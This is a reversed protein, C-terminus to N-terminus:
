QRHRVWARAMESLGRMVAAYRWSRSRHVDDLEVALRRAEEAWTHLQDRAEGLEAGRRELEASLRQLEESLRGREDSLQDREATLRQLAAELETRRTAGETREVEAGRALAALVRHEAFYDSVWEPLDPLSVEDLPRQEGRLGELVALLPSSLDEGSEHLLEAEVVREAADRQWDRTGPLVRDLWDAMEDVVARPRAVLEEYSVVLVDHGRLAHLAAHNYLHWLALGEVLTRGDRQRLSRAVAAPHRWVFVAPAPGGFLTEWFPLLLASRPDKWMRPGPAPYATAVASIAETRLAAIEASKPWGDELEPPVYWTGGLAALVADGVATMALSEHHNPNDFERAMLDGPAPEALGLAALVGAVASTGSRHMGVM